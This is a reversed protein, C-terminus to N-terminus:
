SQTRTPTPSPPGASLNSAVGDRTCSIRYGARSLDLQDGDLRTTVSRYQHAIARVGGILALQTPDTGAFGANTGAVGLVKYGGQHLLIRGSFANVSDKALMQGAAFSISGHLRSPISTMSGGHDVAVIRWQYGVIEAAGGGANGSGSSACSALCVMAALAAVWAAMCRSRSQIDMVGGRRCTLAFGRPRRPLRWPINWGPDAGTVRMPHALNSCRRDNEEVGRQQYVGLLASDVRCWVDATHDQLPLSYVPLTRLTGSATLEQTPQGDGHQGTM